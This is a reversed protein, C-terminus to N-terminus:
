EYHLAEAPTLRMAMRAPSVACLATLVFMLVVSAALSGLFVGTSVGPLVGLLPVQLLLVLAPAVGFCTVVVIEGVILLAVQAATSGKARRLGIERTRRTVNQWVVGTLGLVVMMLLFLGVLALLVIPALRVRLSSARLESVPKVVISWGPDIRQLSRALSEEFAPPTDPRVRVVLSRPAPNRARALDIRGFVYNRAPSIEGDKRFDTIVGVVRRPVVVEGPPLDKPPDAILKGLPDAHGFLERSLRENIVVPAWSSAADDERSFWRGATVKLSMVEAFDDTAFNERHEYRRGNLSNDSQWTSTSYPGSVVAAVGEVDPLSKADRIAEELQAFFRTDDRAGEASKARISVSLVRSGDFGLPRRFGDLAWAAVATVAFLVVFSFFIEAVLLANTRKRNWVLRILHRTM